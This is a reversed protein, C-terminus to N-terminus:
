VASRGLARYPLPPLVCPFVGFLGHARRRCDHRLVGRRVRLVQSPCVSVVVRARALSIWVCVSLCIPVPLCLVCMCVRIRPWVCARARAYVAPCYPMGHFCMCEVCWQECLEPCITKIAGVGVDPHCPFCHGVESVALCQESVRGAQLIRYARLPLPPFLLLLRVYPCVIVYM